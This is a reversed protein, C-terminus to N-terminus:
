ENKTYKYQKTFADEVSMGNKLRRSITQYPINFQRAWDLLVKSEGNYNIIVNSRRNRDQQFKTGWICNEPTYNGNVDLRELSHNKSPKTGLDDFFNQFSNIWRECILIGRKGYNPYSKCKPNLCRQKMSEWSVYESSLHKSHKTIRKLLSNTRKCGCSQVKGHIVASIRTIIKNGCECQFIAKRLRQKGTIIKEHFDEELFIMNNVIEGKTFIQKM